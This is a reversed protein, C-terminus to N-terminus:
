DASQHGLLTVLIAKQVHLRNEAEDYVISHPGDLVEDTIEEGRHAPLCHMVLVDPKALQVLAADVQFEQFDRRRKATEAEQGMSTWVDTYLVDAGEAAARADNLLTICGGSLEAERRSAAVVDPDPEYGKPCGVHLEIGTRAAGYLWSHCVNNGDGIYAVKVGRLTGCREQLTYLDALIQCPHTLDSLGNIVPVAAHRALGEVTNHTFTRAVIGDVWRELNKAVDKVTERIGLQIDAPALYIARGGLQTMGVDFTVRTRLSPKEFIMGLTKNLLLPQAIGKRQQAKLDATLIFLSNIESATLDSISLLDKKM